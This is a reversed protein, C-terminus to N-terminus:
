PEVSAPPARLAEPAIEFIKLFFAVGVPELPSKKQGAGEAPLGVLKTRTGEQNKSQLGLRASFRAMLCPKSNSAEEPEEAPQAAPGNAVLAWTRTVDQVIQKLEAMPLQFVSCHPKM